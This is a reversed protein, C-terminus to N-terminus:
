CSATLRPMGAISSRVESAGPFRLPLAGAPLLLLPGPAAAFGPPFVRDPFPVLQQSSPLEPDLLSSSCPPYGRVSFDLQTSQTSQSLVSYQTHTHTRAHLHLLSAPRVATGPRPEPSQGPYSDFCPNTAEFLLLELKLEHYQIWVPGRLSTGTRHYVREM